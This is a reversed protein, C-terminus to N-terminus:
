NRKGDIFAQLHEEFSIISSTVLKEGNEKIIISRGGRSNNWFYFANIESLEKCNRKAEECGLDLLEMVTSIINESM